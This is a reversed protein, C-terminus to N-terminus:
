GLLADALKAFARARHSLPETEQGMEWGHKEESTMQGFTREHGDPLFVPDYGFGSDGRPPWILEGHAEGRFYEAHGDPWCLCLVACFFGRRQASTTAGQAQLAHEVKEMAMMFDRGSGDEKEAWDATYVGPEGDLAEVCIGSDDSLAVMGTASAAAWAKTYANDEFTTGDEA